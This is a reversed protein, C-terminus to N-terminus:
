NLIILLYTHYILLMKKFIFYLAHSTKKVNKVADKVVSLLLIEAQSVDRLVRVPAILLWYHNVEEWAYPTKHYLPDYHVSGVVAFSRDLPCSAHNRLQKCVTKWLYVEGSKKIRMRERERERAKLLFKVCFSAFFWYTRSRHRRM